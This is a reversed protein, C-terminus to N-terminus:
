LERLMRHSSVIREEMLLTEEVLSPYAELAELDRLLYSKFCFVHAFGPMQFVRVESALQSPKPVAGLAEFIHQYRPHVMIQHSKPIDLTKKDKFHKSM